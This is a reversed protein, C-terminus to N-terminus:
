AVASSDFHHSRDIRSVTGSEATTAARTPKMRTVGSIRVLPKPKKMAENARPSNTRSHQTFNRSGKPPGRPM